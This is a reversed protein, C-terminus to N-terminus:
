LPDRKQKAVLAIRNAVRHSFWSQDYILNDRYSNSM